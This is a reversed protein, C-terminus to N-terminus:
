SDFLELLPTYLLSILVKNVIGLKGEWVGDGREEM